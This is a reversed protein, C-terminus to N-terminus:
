CSDEAAPIFHISFNLVATVNAATNMYLFVQIKFTFFYFFLILGFVGWFYGDNGRPRLLKLSVHICVSLCM